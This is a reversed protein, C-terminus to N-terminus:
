GRAAAEVHGLSDPLGHRLRERALEADYDRARLRQNRAREELNLLGRAFGDFMRGNGEDLAVMSFGTDALSPIGHDPYLLHSRRRVDECLRRHSALKTRLEAALQEGWAALERGEEFAREKAAELNTRELAAEAEDVATQAKMVAHGAEAASCELKALQRSLNERKLLDEQKLTELSGIRALEERTADISNALSTAVHQAKALMENATNFRQQSTEEM